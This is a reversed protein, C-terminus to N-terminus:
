LLPKLMPYSLRAPHGRWVIIGRSIVAAAPVGMVGFSESITGDEKAVTYQIGHKKIFARVKEDTAEGSVKTLAVVEVGAEKLAAYLEQVRPVEVQCHPCWVEWFLIVKTGPLDLGGGPPGQYVLEIGWNEPTPKGIVELERQMKEILPANPSRGFQGLYEDLLPRLTDTDSTSAVEDIEKLLDYEKGEAGITKAPSQIRQDLADLRELLTRELRDLRESLDHEPGIILPIGIGFFLLGLVSVALLSGASCITACSIRSESSM